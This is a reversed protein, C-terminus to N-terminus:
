RLKYHLKKIMVEKPVFFNHILKARSFKNITCDIIPYQWLSHDIGRQQLYECTFVRCSISCISCSHDARLYRCNKGVDKYTNACCGNEKSNPFGASYRMKICKNNIFHCYNLKSIECMMDDCVADYMFSLQEKEDHISFLKVLLSIQNLAMKEEEKLENQPIYFIKNVNLFRKNQYETITRFIKMMAKFEIKELPEERKCEFNDLNLLIDKCAMETNKTLEEISIKDLADVVNLFYSRMRSYYYKTFDIKSINFGISIEKCNKFEKKIKAVEEINFFLINENIKKTLYNGVVIIKAEKSKKVLWTPVEKEEIIDFLVITDKENIEELQLAEINPVSLQIESYLYKLVNKLMYTIYTANEEDCKSIIELKESTKKTDIEYKDFYNIKM